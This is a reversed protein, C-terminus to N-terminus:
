GQHESASQLPAIIELKLGQEIFEKILPDVVHQRVITAPLSCRKESLGVIKSRIAIPIDFVNARKSCDECFEQDLLNPNQAIRHLANNLFGRFSKGGKISAMFELIRWDEETYQLRFSKGNIKQPRKM